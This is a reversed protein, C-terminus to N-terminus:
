VTKWSWFLSVHSVKELKHIMERHWYSELIDYHKKYVPDLEHLSHKNSYEDNHYWSQKMYERYYVNVHEEINWIHEELFDMKLFFEESELNKHAVLLNKIYFYCRTRLPPYNMKRLDSVGRKRGMGQISFVVVSGILWLMVAHHKGKILGPVSRNISGINEDLLLTALIYYAAFLDADVELVQNELHELWAEESEDMFMSCEPKMLVNSKYKLHGNVIHWLEHNLVLKCSIQLMLELYRQATLEDYKDGWTLLSYFDNKEYLLVNYIRYISDFVESNVKIHYSGNEYITSKANFWIENSVEYTIDISVNYVEKINTTIHEIAAEIIKETLERPPKTFM